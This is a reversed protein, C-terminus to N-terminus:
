VSIEWAIARVRRSASQHMDVIDFPVFALQTVNSPHGVAAGKGPHFYEFEATDARTRM